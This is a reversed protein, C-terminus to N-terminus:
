IHKHTLLRKDGGHRKADYDLQKIKRLLRTGCEHKINLKWNNGM